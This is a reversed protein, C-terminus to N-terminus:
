LDGRQGPSMKSLFPIKIIQIRIWGTFCACLREWDGVAMFTQCALGACVGGCLTVLYSSNEIFELKRVDLMNKWDSTNGSLLPANHALGANNVCVDVGGFEAQARQFAAKVDEEQSVDCKVALLRGTKKNGADSNIAKSLEQMTTVHALNIIDYKLFETNISQEQLMSAAQVYSTPVSHEEQLQTFNYIWQLCVWLM